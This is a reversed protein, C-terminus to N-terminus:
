GSVEVLAAKMAVFVDAFRIMEEDNPFGRELLAVLEGAPTAVDLLLTALTYAAGAWAQAGEYGAERSARCAAQAVQIAAPDFRM